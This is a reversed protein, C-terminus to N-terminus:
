AEEARPLRVQREAVMRELRGIEQHAQGLKYSLQQLEDQMREIRTERRESERSLAEMLTRMMASQAEMLSVLRSLTTGDPETGELRGLRRMRARGAAVPVDGAELQRVIPELSRDIKILDETRIVYPRGAAGAQREAQLRGERIAERVRGAADPAVQAIQTLTVNM